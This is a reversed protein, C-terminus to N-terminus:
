LCTGSSRRSVTEGILAKLCACASNVALIDVKCTTKNFYPVAEYVAAKFVCKPHASLNLHLSNKHGQCKTLKELLTLLTISFLSM